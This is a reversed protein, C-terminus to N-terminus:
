QMSYCVISFNTAVKLSVDWTYILKVMKNLLEDKNIAIKSFYVHNNFGYVNILM